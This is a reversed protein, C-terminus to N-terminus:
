IEVQLLALKCQEILWLVDGGDAMSAAFYLEDHENFGMIVCSDLKGKTEELVYDVPKDLKIVNGLPIVNDM